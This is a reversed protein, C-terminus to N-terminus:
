FPGPTEPVLVDVRIGKEALQSALGKAFCATAAKTAPSDGSHASVAYVIFSGSGLHPLAAKTIWVIAYVDTEFSSGPPETSRRLFAGTDSVLIDLGGLARVADAILRTCSADDGLAGPLLAASRGQARLVRAVDRAQTEEAAPYGIAVDAGERALALAAAHGLDSVGTVVLAKRGALRGDRMPIQQNM